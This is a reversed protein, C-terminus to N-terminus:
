DARRTMSRKLLPFSFQGFHRSLTTIANMLTKGVTFLLVYINLTVSYCKIIGIIIGRELAGAWLANGM